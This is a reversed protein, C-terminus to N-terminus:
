YLGPLTVPSTYLNCLRTFNTLSLSELNCCHEADTAFLFVLHIRCM